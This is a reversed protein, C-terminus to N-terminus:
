ETARIIGGEKRSNMAEKEDIEEHSAVADKYTVYSMGIKKIDTIDKLPNFILFGLWPSEIDEDSEHWVRKVKEFTALADKQKGTLIVSKGANIVFSSKMVEEKGIKRPIVVPMRKSTLFSDLFNVTRGDVFMAIIRSKSNTDLYGYEVYKKELHKNFEDEMDEPMLNLNWDTVFARNLTNKVEFLETGKDILEELGKYDVKSIEPAKVKALKDLSETKKDSM